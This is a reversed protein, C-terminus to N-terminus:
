KNIQNLINLWEERNRYEEIGKRPKGTSTIRYKDPVFTRRFLREKSKGIPQIINIYKNQTSLLWKAKIRALNLGGKLDREPKIEISSVYEGDIYEALFIPNPDFTITQSDVKLKIKNKKELLINTSVLYDDVRNWVIKFDPTYVTNNLKFIQNSKFDSSYLNFRECEFCYTKVLGIEILEDLWWSFAEEYSSRHLSKINEEGIEELGLAQNTSKKRRKSM